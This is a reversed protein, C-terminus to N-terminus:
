QAGRDSVPPRRVLLIDFGLTQALAVLCGLSPQRVGQRWAYLSNMSVGSKEEMTVISMGIREREAKLAAMATRQDTLDYEDTM